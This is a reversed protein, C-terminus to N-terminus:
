SRKGDPTKNSKGNERKAQQEKRKNKERWYKGKRTGGKKDSRHATGEPIDGRSEEAQVCEKKIKRYFFAVALLSCALVAGSFVLTFDLRGPFAAAESTEQREESEKVGQAQKIRTGSVDSAYTKERTHEAAYVLEAINELANDDENTDNAESTNYGADEGEANEAEEPTEGAAVSDGAAAEGNDAGAGNEEENEAGSGTERERNEEGLDARAKGDDATSLALDGRIYGTVGNATTIKHWTSGDEATVDGLYDFTSGQILNGVANSGEGAQGYIVASSSELSAPAALAVAEGM